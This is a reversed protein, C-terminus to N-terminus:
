ADYVPLMLCVLLHACQAKFKGPEFFIPLEFEKSGALGPLGALGSQECRM